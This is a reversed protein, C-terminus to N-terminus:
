RARGRTGLVKLDGERRGLYELCGDAALRGLDGTFYVGTGDRSEFREEHSRTAALLRLALYDSEVAIEGVDGTRWRTM